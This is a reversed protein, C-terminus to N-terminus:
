RCDMAKSIKKLNIRMIDSYSLNERAEDATINALPQLVDVIVNSEKAVTSIAQSSAFNEYFITSLNHEKVHEILKIMNKANVSAEPSLQSLSLVKFGYSHALYSYANHNTLIENHRCESLANKYEVDLAELTQLYKTQNRLYFDKNEPDLEICAGTIQRTTEKMNKISLWYHPDTSGHSCSESHVHDKHSHSDLEILDVFKSMDITKSEFTLRDIWPELSVGSYIILDSKHLKVIDKPNPEYAHIDVGFPLIMYTDIKDQAINKAIDYLPFTSLAIRLKSVKEEPENALQADQKLVMMQLLFVVIVLIFMTNKLNM